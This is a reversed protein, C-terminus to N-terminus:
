ALLGTLKGSRARGDTIEAARRRHHYRVANEHMGLLEAIRRNSYGREALTEITM